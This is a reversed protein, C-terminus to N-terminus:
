TLFTLASAQQKMQHEDTLMKPVWRSCSKWFHLKEPVIEHLLSWSIQPFHLSTVFHHITRKFRRKWQVCWIKMLWLRDAARCILMFTKADKM